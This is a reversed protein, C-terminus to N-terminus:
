RIIEAPKGDPFRPREIYPTQEQRVQQLMKAILAHVEDWPRKGLVAMVYNYEADELNITPM